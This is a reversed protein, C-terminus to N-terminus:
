MEESDEDLRPPTESPISIPIHSELNAVGARPPPPPLFGKRPANEPRPMSGSPQFASPPLQSPRIEKPVNPSGLHALSLLEQNEDVVVGIQDIKEPVVERAQEVLEAKIGAMAAQELRTMESERMRRPPPARRTAGPDEQIPPHESM